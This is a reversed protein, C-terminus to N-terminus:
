HTTMTRILLLHIVNHITTNAPDLIDNHVWGADHMTMVVKYLSGRQAKTLMTGQIHDQLLATILFATRSTVAVGYCHPIYPGMVKVLAAYCAYEQLLGQYNDSVKIAIESIRIGQKMLLGARVAGDAGRALPRLIHVSYGEANALEGQWRGTVRIRDVVLVTPHAESSVCLMDSSGCSSNPSFSTDKADDSDSHPASHWDRGTAAFTEPGPPIQDPFSPSGIQALRQFIASLWPRTSRSMAAKLVVALVLLPIGDQSLPPDPGFIAEVLEPTLPRVEDGFDRRNSIPSWFFHDGRRWGVCVVTIAAFVVWDTDYAAAYLAGKNVIVWWNPQHAPVDGEADAVEVRVIGLASGRRSLERVAAPLRSWRKDEWVELFGPVGEIKLSNDVVFDDFDPSPRKVRYEFNAPQSSPSPNFAETEIAEFADMAFELLTETASNSGSELDGFVRKSRSGFLKAWRTNLQQMLNELTAQLEPHQALHSDLDGELAAILQNCLDPAVSWHTAMNMNPVSLWQGASIGTFGTTLSLPLHPDAIPPLLRLRLATM